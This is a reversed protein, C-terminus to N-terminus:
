LQLRIYFLCLQQPITKEKKPFVAYLLFYLQISQCLLHEIELVTVHQIVSIILFIECSGRWNCHRNHIPRIWESTANKCTFPFFHDRISSSCCGAGPKLSKHTHLKQVELSPQCHLMPQLQLQTRQSGHMRNLKGFLLTSRGPEKKIRLQWKPLLLYPLSPPLILIGETRPSNDAISTQRSELRGAVELIIQPIFRIFFHIRYGKLETPPLAYLVFTIELMEPQLLGNQM